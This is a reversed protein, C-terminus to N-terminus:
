AGQEGGQSNARRQRSLEERLREMVEPANAQLNRLDEEAKEPAWIEIYARCGLLTIKDEIGVMEKLYDPLVLRGVDDISTYNVLSMLRFSDMVAPSLLDVSSVDGISSWQDESMLILCPKFFSLTLVLHPHEHGWTRIIQNRLKAPLIFRSKGDLKANYRGSFM